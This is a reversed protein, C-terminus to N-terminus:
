MVSCCPKGSQKKECLVHTTSYRVNCDIIALATRNTMPDRALKTCWPNARTWTGSAYANYSSNHVQSTWNHFSLTSNSSPVIVNLARNYQELTVLTFDYNLM